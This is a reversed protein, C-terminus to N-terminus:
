PSVGCKCSIAGEWYAALAAPDNPDSPSDPDDLRESAAALAAAPQEPSISSKFTPDRKM